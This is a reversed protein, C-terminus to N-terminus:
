WKWWAGRRRPGRQSRALLKERPPGRHDACAEAVACEYEIGVFCELHRAVAAQQLEDLRLAKPVSREPCASPVPAGSSPHRRPLGIWTCGRAVSNSCKTLPVSSTIVPFSSPFSIVIFVSCDPCPITNGISRACPSFSPYRQRRTRTQKWGQCRPDQRM